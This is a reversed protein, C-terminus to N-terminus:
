LLRNSTWSCGSHKGTGFATGLAACALNSGYGSIITMMEGMNSM